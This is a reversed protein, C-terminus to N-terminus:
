CIFIIFDIRIQMFKLMKKAPQGTQNCIKIPNHWNTEIKFLLTTFPTNREHKTMKKETKKM